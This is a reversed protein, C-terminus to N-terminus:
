YEVVVVTSGEGVFFTGATRRAVLIIRDNKTLRVPVTVSISQIGDGGGFRSSAIREDFYYITDTEKDYLAVSIDLEGGVGSKVVNANFRVSFDRELLSTYTLQNKGTVENEVFRKYTDYILNNVNGVIQWSTSTVSEDIDFYGNAYRKINYTQIIDYHGSLWTHAQLKVGEGVHELTGYKQGAQTDTTRCMIPVKHTGNVAKEIYTHVYRREISTTSLPLLVGCENVLVNLAVLVDMNSDEIVLTNIIRFSTLADPIIELDDDFTLETATNRLIVSYYCMADKTICVINDILSNVTWSATSDALTTITGATALGEYINTDAPKYNIYNQTTTKLNNNTFGSM